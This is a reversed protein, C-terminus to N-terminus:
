SQPRVSGGANLRLPNAAMRAGHQDAKANAVDDQDLRQIKRDPGAQGRKGALGARALGDDQVGQAQGRARPGLRAQDAPATRLRGGGGDERRRGIVGDPSIQFVLADGEFAVLIQHQAALQGRVAARAGEDVVLPDAHRHQTLEALHQDLHVALVLGHAQQVGAGM